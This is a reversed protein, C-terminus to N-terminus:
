IERAGELVAATRGGTACAAAVPAVVGAFNMMKFVFSRMKLVFNRTKSVVNRTKLAFNM